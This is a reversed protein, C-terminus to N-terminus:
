AVKLRIYQGNITPGIHVLGRRKLAALAENVEFGAKIKLESVFAVDPFLNAAQKEAVINKILRFVEDERDEPTVMAFLDAM